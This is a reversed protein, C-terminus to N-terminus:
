MLNDMYYKVVSICKYEEIRVNWENLSNKKISEANINNDVLLKPESTYITILKNEEDIDIMKMSDLITYLMYSGIKFSDIAKIVSEYVKKRNDSMEHNHKPKNWYNEAVVFTKQRALRIQKQEETEPNQQINTQIPKTDFQYSRKTEIKINNDVVYDYSFIERFCYCLCISVLLMMFVIISYSQKLGIFCLCMSSLIFAIKLFNGM